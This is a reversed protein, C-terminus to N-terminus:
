IKEEKYEFLQNLKTKFDKHWGVKLDNALIHYTGRMIFQESCRERIKINKDQINHYLEQGFEIKKNELEESSYTELRDEIQFFHREWEDILKDSYKDLEEIYILEDRVWNNRQVFAWHYDSIAKKISKNNVCILKLQECFTKEKNPLSDVDIESLFSVDIPLNDESYEDRYQAIKQRVSKQNILDKDESMLYSIVIDYWWGEIREYIKDEYKPLSGYRLKSMINKKVEIINSTNDIVTIKSIIKLTLREDMERFNKYYKAHARNISENAVKNLIDFARREDRDGQPKLFFAASGEPANATTLILFNISPLLSQNAKVMDIWVNITRWIDSSSNTLNGTEATHHKLQVATDGYAIDDFKEISILAQEDETELLMCLAYRIQFLYGLMPEVANHTTMM